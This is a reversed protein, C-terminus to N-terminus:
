GATVQLTLSDTVTWTHESVSQPDPSYRNSVSVPFFRMWRNKFLRAAKRPDDRVIGMEGSYTLTLILGGFSYSSGHLAQSLEQDSFPGVELQPNMRIVERLSTWLARLQQGVVQHFVEASVHAM